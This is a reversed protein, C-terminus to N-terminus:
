QAPAGALTAVHEPDAPSEVRLGVLALLGALAPMLTGVFRYAIVAALATDIPVGYAHLIVPTVTEVVGVGAPLLPITSAIAGATYALLLVDISVHAGAALLTFHLCLGDAVWALLTTGLLLVRDRPRGAVHMAAAHWAAGRARREDAPPPRRPHRVRGMALWLWEAFARKTSLWTTAALAAFTLLGGVVVSGRYPGPVDSVAAAVLADAAALAFLGRASSWSCPWRWGADTRPRSPTFRPM